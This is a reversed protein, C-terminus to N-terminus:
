NYHYAFFLEYKNYPKYGRQFWSQFDAIDAHDASQNYHLFIVVNSPHKIQKGEHVYPSQLAKAQRPARKVPLRSSPVSIPSKQMNIQYPSHSTPVHLTCYNVYRVSNNRSVVKEASETDKLVDYVISEVYTEVKISKTPEKGKSDITIEADGVINLGSKDRFKTLFEEMSSSILAAVFEIMFQMNSRIDILDTHIKGQIHVITNLKNQYDHELSSIETEQDHKLSSIESKMADIAVSMRRNETQLKTLQKFFQKRMEDVVQVMHTGMILPLVITFVEITWIGTRHGTELVHSTHVRHSIFVAFTSYGTVLRILISRQERGDPPTDVFDDEGDDRPVDSHGLRDDTIMLLPTSAKVSSYSPKRTARVSHVSRDVMGEKRREGRSREPQGPEIYQVEYMYSMAMEMDSPDLDCIEMKKANKSPVSGSPKHRKSPSDERIQEAKWKDASGSSKGESKKPRNASSSRTM